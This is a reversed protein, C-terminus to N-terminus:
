DVFTRVKAPLQRAHPFVAYISLDEEEFDELAAELRGASLDEGAIFTPLMCVGIGNLAAVRLADGNNTQFSGSVAVTMPGNPGSFRWGGQTLLYTYNLCNHDKLQRPHAPRGHSEWYEPSACVVRRYSALRRAILSSDSLRVIRVAVDFGEEILDVVRDNLVLDVKLEPHRSMFGALAPAIHRVGFSMPANVRLTGRPNLQLSTIASQADEVDSLIRICREHFQAGAETLSLRRTTRNLLRAGLRDELRAVRKSVASKSIGLAAAASSFGGAEVVGAFVSMEYLSIM